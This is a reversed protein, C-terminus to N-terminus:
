LEIPSSTQFSPAPLAESVQLPYFGEKGKQSRTAGLTRLMYHCLKLRKRLRLM